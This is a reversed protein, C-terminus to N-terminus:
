VYGIAFAAAVLGVAGAVLMFFGGLPTPDLAARGLSLSTPLEVSGHRGALALAGTLAGTAGLLVSVSGCAASRRSGPVLAAVLVGALMLGLQAAIGLAVGTM